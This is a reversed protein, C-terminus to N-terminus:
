PSKSSTTASVEPTAPGKPSQSTLATVQSSLEAMESLLPGIAEELSSISNAQSNMLQELQALYNTISRQSAKLVAVAGKASQVRLATSDAKGALRTLGSRLRTNEDQANSCDLQSQALQSLVKKHTSSRVCGPASILVCIGLLCITAGAMKSM